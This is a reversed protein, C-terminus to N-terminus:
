DIWYNELKQRYSAIKPTIVYACYSQFPHKQYYKQHYEEAPFFKEFPIVETVISDKYWSKADEKIKKAETEELGDKYWIVSRYQTGKDAGQRNLTTPDHTLMHITLLEKYSIRSSDYSIEICEAHGTIGMCVKEYTPNPDSGGAYGSVVEKVGKIKNFIAETCWFCGGGLYVKEISSM